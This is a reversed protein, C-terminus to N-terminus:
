PNGSPPASAPEGPFKGDKRFLAINKNVAQLYHTHGAAGTTDQVITEADVITRPIGHIQVISDSMADPANPNALVQDIRVQLLGFTTLLLALVVLMNIFDNEKM